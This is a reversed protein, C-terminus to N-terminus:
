GLKIPEINGPKGSPTKQWKNRIGGRSSGGGPKGQRMGYKTLWTAFDPIRSKDQKYRKLQEKKWMKVMQPTLKSKKQEAEEALQQDFFERVEDSMQDLIGPDQNVMDRLMQSAKMGSNYFVDTLQNVPMQILEKATHKTGSINFKPLAMPKPSPPQGGKAFNGPTEKIPSGPMSPTGPAQQSQGPQPAQQPEGPQPPQPMQNQQMDASKQMMRTQQGEQVKSMAEMNIMMAEFQTLDAFPNDLPKEGMKKLILNPTTANCSYLRACLDMKTEVDPDELNLYVFELDFWQLKDHLIKRTFGEQLRKARPVVASRFDKDDLIQGVARNVDHEVGLSMASMDFANAIMRILLEQWNLLLDDETVPTIELIDPKKMGGVISVKAQGELENQIHRRIIQYSSDAQPAEWWLWTNGSWFPYGNERCYLTGNPVMACYVYGSYPIRKPTRAKGRPGAPIISIDPRVMKDVVYMTSKRDTYPTVAASTGIKQFLEQMDDALQKSTTYYTGKKGRVSGDGMMAWDVFIKIISAPADKIWQPTHKTYSNGLVTVYAWIDRDTFLIRDSKAYYKLGMRKLLKEIKQYKAKNAKKSQAIQVRYEGKTPKAQGMSRCSGEALWIGLFAAWDEWAFVKTGIEAKATPLVGDLWKSQTPVRFDFLSPKDQNSKGARWGKGPRANLEDVLDTAQVFGLPAVDKDSSKYKRYVRRGYMRHNPTVTIKTSRNNFQILDGDHWEKVFGLAHQWQLQGTLSRTAFEDDEKVDRWLLWGRRTLVETGEPFCKHIQDSGARGSMDQIGLFGMLSMFAVEMAGLGFPNDTSCNDKIYLLEDDYFIQAGREGKLGTMQAYHPMEPTSESWSAFIRLSEINVCWMKMPREPDPTFRLESAFAGLTLQDELGMEQWSQFSDVNNPHKFMKMAIKIREKQEDEGDPPEVGEIARVAWPQATVSNKILNMARRPVPTRSMRRLNYPTAKAIPTALRQASAPLFPWAWSKRDTIDFKGARIAATEQLQRYEVATIQERLTNKVDQLEKGHSRVVMPWYQLELQALEQAHAVKFVRLIERKRFYHVCWAYIALHIRRLLQM